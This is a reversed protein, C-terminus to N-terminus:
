HDVNSLRLRLFNLKQADTKKPRKNKPQSLVRLAKQLLRRHCACRETEAAIGTVMDPEGTFLPACCVSARIAASPEGLPGEGPRRVFAPMDAREPQAEMM